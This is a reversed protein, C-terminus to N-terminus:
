YSIPYVRIKPYSSTNEVFIYSVVLDDGQHLLFTVDLGDKQELLMITVNIDLIHNICKAAAAQEDSTVCQRLTISGEGEISAWSLLM